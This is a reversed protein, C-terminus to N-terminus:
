QRAQEDDSSILRGIEDLLKRYQDWALVTFGPQQTFSTREFGTIELKGAAKSDVTLRVQGKGTVVRIHSKRADRWRARDEKTIPTVSLSQLDLIYPLYNAGGVRQAELRDLLGNLDEDVRALLKKWKGGSLDRVISNLEQPLAQIEREMAAMRDGLDELFRM